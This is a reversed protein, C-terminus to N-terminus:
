RWDGILIFPAWFGPHSLEGGQKIFRVQAAQLAKAKNLAPNTLGQYFEAIVEATSADNVSWLSAIASRTGAQVAVGALGLVARSDGIATQCATLTLLDIQRTGGTQRIAAELETISLTKGDGTLLFTDQPEAGFQGHTALHLISYENDRLEARLRDRTFRDNLFGQSDPFQQTVQALEQEVAPLAGWNRGAATIAKSLGLALLRLRSRQLPPSTLTLSLSPTAAIAYQEILYHSGDYLAAMPISRFIGDQVFVLTDVGAQELDAVFPRMLQDYLPQGVTPNYRRYFIELRTRFDNVAQNLREQNLDLWEVRRSGDPLTLIIATRDALILTNFIATRPERTVINQTAEEPTTAAVVLCDNGFYNQLEALRLSDVAKLAASVNAVPAAENLRLRTSPPAQSLRLEALQRYIPEVTDRFDFQIDRDAILIDSRISELTKVAKEYAAIAETLNGQQHLIRGTQWQWLYLSDPSTLSQDAAWEARQTLQLAQGYNQRCEYLQGLKGYAFSQARYDEITQAIAIATRLLPEELATSDGDRVVGDCTAGVLKGATESHQQVLPSLNALDIATYAKLRSNPLLDLLAVADQYAQALATTDGARHYTRVLLTLTQLQAQPDGTQRAAELSTELFILAAANYEG